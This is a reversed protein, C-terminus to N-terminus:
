SLLKRTKVSLSRHHRTGVRRKRTLYLKRGGIKVYLPRDRPVCMYSCFIDYDLKSGKEDYNRDALKPDYILAGKADKNTVATGGPKHSWLGNSDQRYFHYDEDADVVLGIKSTNKPCRETFSSITLSPNDGLLRNIMDSCTKYKQASFKKHGSASGPQHFPVNCTKSKFCASIQKPDHINMAYAFCNHTERVEKKINWRDPEYKPESGSLPSIRPCKRTKHVDCFHDGQKVTRRCQPLCQCQPRRPAM